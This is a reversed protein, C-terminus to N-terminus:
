IIDMESSHSRKEALSDEQIQMELRDREECVPGCEPLKEEGYLAPSVDHGGTMLFGDLEVATQLIDDGSMEFPLMVPIGGAASIGKMYGPLMWYSEREEDVLPILGIMPKM